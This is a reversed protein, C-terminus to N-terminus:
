TADRGEKLGRFPRSNRPAAGSSVAQPKMRSTDPAAGSKRQANSTNSSSGLLAQASAVLPTVRLPEMMANSKKRSATPVAAARGDLPRRNQPRQRLGGSREGEGAFGLAQDVASQVLADIIGRM